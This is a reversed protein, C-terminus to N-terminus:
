RRPDRSERNPEGDRASLTSLNAAVSAPLVRDSASSLWAALSAKPSEDRVEIWAEAFILAWACVDSASVALLGPFGLGDAREHHLEVLRAIEPDQGFARIMQAGTSPHMFEEATAMHSHTLPARGVDHWHGASKLNSLQRKDKVGLAVAARLAWHTVRGCHSDAAGPELLAAIGDLILGGRRRAAALVQEQEELQSMVQLSHELRAESHESLAIAHSTSVAIVALVRDGVARAFAYVAAVEPRLRTADNVLTAYKGDLEVLQMATLDWPQEDSTALLEVFLGEQTFIAVAGEYDQLGSLAVELFLQTAAKRDSMSRMVNSHVANGVERLAASRRQQLEFAAGLALTSIAAAAPTENTLKSTTTSPQGTLWVRGKGLDKWGALHAAETTSLSPTKDLVSQEDIVTAEPAFPHMSPIDVRGAIETAPAAAAGQYRISVGVRHLGGDEDAAYVAVWDILLSETLADLVSALM